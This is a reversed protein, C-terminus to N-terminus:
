SRKGAMPPEEACSTVTLSLVVCESKLAYPLLDLLAGSIEMEGTALDVAVSPRPEPPPVPGSTLAKVM